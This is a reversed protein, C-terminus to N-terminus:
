SCLICTYLHLRVDSETYTFLICLFLKNFHAWGLLSFDGVFNTFKGKARSSLCGYLGLVGRRLCLIYVMRMSATTVCVVYERSGRWYWFVKELLLANGGPDL